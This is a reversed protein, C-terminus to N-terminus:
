WIGDIQRGVLQTSVARVMVNSLDYAYLKVPSPIDTISLTASSAHLIYQTTSSFAYTHPPHRTQRRVVSSVNDKKCYRQRRVRDLAERQGEVVVFLVVEGSRGKNEM